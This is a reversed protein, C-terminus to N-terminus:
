GQWRFVPFTSISPNMTWVSSFDFGSYTSQSQMASYDRSETDVSINVDYGEKLWVRVSGVGAPAESSYYCNSITNSGANGIVYGSIGGVYVRDFEYDGTQCSLSGTNYSCAISCSRATFQGGTIGGVCSEVYGTKASLAGCNFCNKVQSTGCFWGVIGGINMPTATAIGTITGTNFCEEILTNEWSIGVIGGACLRMGSASTYSTGNPEGDKYSIVVDSSCRSINSSYAEGAVAGARLVPSSRCDIHGSIKEINRVTAGKLVSFLGADEYITADDIVMNRITHGNGEFTGTFGSVGGIPTWAGWSSLDIDNMLMYSAALNNRVADLDAADYIGIYGDPAAPKAGDPKASDGSGKNEDVPDDTKPPDNSTDLSIKEFGPLTFNLNENKFSKTLEDDSYSAILEIKEQAKPYTVSYAWEGTSGTSRYKEYGYQCARLYLLTSYKLQLPDFDNYDKGIIMGSSMFQERAEQQIEACDLLTLVAKTRSEMGLFKDAFLKVMKVTLSNYGLEEKLAEKLLDQMEGESFSLAWDKLFSEFPVANAEFHKYVKQTATLLQIDDISKNQYLGYKVSNVYLHSAYRAGYANELFGIYDSIGLGPISENLTDYTYLVSEGSSGLLAAIEKEGVTEKAFDVITSMTKAANNVDSAASLLQSENESPVMIGWLTKEYQERANGGWLANISWGSGIIEYWATVGVLPIDKVWRLDFDTEGSFVDECEHYLNEVFSYTPNYGLMDVESLYTYACSLQDLVDPMRIFEKGQYETQQGNFRVRHHENEFVHKDNAKSYSMESLFAASEPTIYASGQYNLIQVIATQQTKVNYAQIEYLESQPAAFVSIPMTTFCLILALVLSIIKTRKRM